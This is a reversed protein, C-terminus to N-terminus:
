GVRLRPSAGVREAFAVTADVILEFDHDMTAVHYSRELVLETADRGALMGLLARSSAPPVSHDKPSYAVLIPVALKAVADRIRPLEPILSAAAKLPLRSYAKEDGGKAIDNKA